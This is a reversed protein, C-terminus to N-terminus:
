RSEASRSTSAESFRGPRARGEEYIKVNLTGESGNLFSEVGFSSRVYAALEGKPSDQKAFGASQRFEFAVASVLLDVLQLPVAAKSDLRCITTIATRDFRGNVAERVEEEFRVEDPTSYNDALVSVVEGFKITGMLLQTALKEYAAYGSGFRSVPDAQERDAVFCSFELDTTALLDVVVKYLPLAGRTMRAFHIEDYWHKRDRLKEVKRVLVSPTELKLCGVAFFRDQSVSGSEDLFIASTPHGIPLTVRSNRIGKPPM